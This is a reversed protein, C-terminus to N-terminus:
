QSQWSSINIYIVVNFELSNKNEKTAALKNKTSYRNVGLFYDFKIKGKMIARMFYYIEITQLNQFREKLLM